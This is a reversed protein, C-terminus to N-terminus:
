PRAPRGAATDIWVVIARRIARPAPTITLPALADASAQPLVYVLADDSAPLLLGGLPSAAAVPTATPPTEGAAVIEGGFLSSDWARRFAGIEPDTLGAARLAAALADAGVAAPSSPSGIEVSAGPAPAAAVTVQRTSRRIRLISGPIAAGGSLTARVIDGDRAVALPLSPAGRIEGRYFLHDYAAGGYRVCDGDSTEVTALTAAECSDPVQVGSCPAEGDNPYRSGACNGEEISVGQWALRDAAAGAVLPWHEVIRGSPISVGVDVTLAGEGERHFYLVPKAVPIPIEDRHPGSLMVQDLMTGRVLGWEHVEYSPPTAPAPAIPEPTSPASTSTAGCSSCAGLSLAALAMSLRVRTSMRSGVGSARRLKAAIM